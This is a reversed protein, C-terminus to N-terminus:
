YNQLPSGWKSQNRFKKLNVIQLGMILNNGPHIKLGTMLNNGANNGDLILFLNSADITLNGQIIPPLESVLYITAPDGPPFVEPDFTIVDGGSATQLAWRM